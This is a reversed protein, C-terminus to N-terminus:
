VNFHEVEQIGKRNMVVRYRKYKVGGSHKLQMIFNIYYMKEGKVIGVSGDEEPVFLPVEPNDMKQIYNSVNFRIIDNMGATPYPSVKGLKDKNLRVLKRFLIIQEKNNRNEAELIFSRQRIRMVESPVKRESIFDMGEKHWGINHENLSIDTKVDFFRRGWRHALYYRALEKLRDKLMYSIVLAVFFPMTLSGYQKQFSFAIATAFVMSIGAALSFYIQEIWVGERRRRVDLFLENEAYKKLLSLRFVLERNKDKGNKNVILLGNDKKYNIEQHILEMLTQSISQNLRGKKRLDVILKFAHQEILNSMFEDGFLYYNLLNGKLGPKDIITKLERYAATIKTSNKIFNDTLEHHDKDQNGVIFAVEERLASKLISIFMRIHYEYAASEAGSIHRSLQVVSEKLFRYPDETEDALEELTYVPTVLRINSKLDKYFDGKQYNWRNIDLSNPIFIWTSVSFENINQERALFGLKIELSFKDHIKVQEEIM